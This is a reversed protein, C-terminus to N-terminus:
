ISARKNKYNVQTGCIFRVSSMGFGYKDITEKAADKIKL